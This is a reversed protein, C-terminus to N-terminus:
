LMTPSCRMSNKDQLFMQVTKLEFKLGVPMKRVALAERYISCHTWRMEAAVECIKAAVGSRRGTMVKIGGTCVGVCTKWDM